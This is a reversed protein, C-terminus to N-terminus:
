EFQMEVGARTPTATGSTGEEVLKVNIRVTAMVRWQYRKGDIEVGQTRAKETPVMLDDHLVCFEATGKSNGAKDKKEYKMYKPFPNTTALTLDGLKVETGSYPKWLGWSQRWLAPPTLTAPTATQAEAVMTKVAEQREAKSKYKSGITLDAM